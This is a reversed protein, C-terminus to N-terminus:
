HIATASPHGVDPGRASRFLVGRFELRSSVISIFIINDIGLVIELVTLTILAMWTDPKSLIEILAEM